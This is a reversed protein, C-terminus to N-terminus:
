AAVQVPNTDFLPTGSYLEDRISSFDMAQPYRAELAKPRDDIMSSDVPITGLYGVTDTAAQFSAWDKYTALAAPTRGAHTKKGYACAKLAGSEICFRTPDLLAGPIRLLVTHGDHTHNDTRQFFLHIRAFCHAVHAKTALCVHPLNVTFSPDLGHRLISELARETTGHWYFAMPRAPTPTKLDADRGLGDFHPPFPHLTM